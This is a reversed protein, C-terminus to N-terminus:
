RVGRCRTGCGGDGCSWGVWLLGEWKFRAGGEAVSWTSRFLPLFKRFLTALINPVWVGRTLAAPRFALPSHVPAVRRFIAPRPSPDDSLPGRSGGQRRWWPLVIWLGEHRSFRDKPEESEAERWQAAPTGSCRDEIDGTQVGVPPSTLWDAHPAAPPRNGGLWSPPGRPGWGPQRRVFSNAGALPLSAAQPARCAPLDHAKRSLLLM